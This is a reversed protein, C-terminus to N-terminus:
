LMHGFIYSTLHHTLAVSRGYVGYMNNNTVKNWRTKNLLIHYIRSSFINLISIMLSSMHRYVMVIYLPFGM